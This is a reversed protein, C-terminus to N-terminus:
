VIDLALDFFISRQHNELFNLTINKLRYSYSYRYEFRKENQYHSNPPHLKSIYITLFKTTNVREHNSCKKSSASSSLPLNPVTSGSSLRKPLSGHLIYEQSWDEFPGWSYGLLSFTLTCITM